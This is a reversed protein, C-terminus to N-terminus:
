PLDGNSPNPKREPAPPRMGVTAVCRCIPSGLNHFKEEYGTMIGQIGAAHLDFVVESLDYGALPFQTLSFDFLPRNDTKFHIQGNTNLIDRYSLLFDVHTLRRKAHRKSPWPDCFNIYILDVEHPSFMATLRAADDAVFVVNTLGLRKVLEMAIIMADPVKEVAVFFIDPHAAATEATFRGKGCGIEVRLECGPRFLNRWHGKQQDPNRVWIDSCQEMRPVLNKKKRMRM